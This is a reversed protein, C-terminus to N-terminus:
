LKLSLLYTFRYIKLSGGHMLRFVRPRDKWKVGVRVGLPTVSTVSIITEKPVREGARNGVVVRGPSGVLLFESAAVLTSHLYLEGIGQAYGVWFGDTDWLKRRCDIRKRTSFMPLLTEGALDLIERSGSLDPRFRSKDYDRENRDRPDGAFVVLLTEEAVLVAVDVVSEGVFDASAEAPRNGGRSQMNGLIRRSAFDIDLVTELVNTYRLPQCAGLDAVHESM